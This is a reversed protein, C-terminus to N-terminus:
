RVAGTQCSPAPPEPSAEAFAVAAEIEADVESKIRALKDETTGASERLYRAAVDVPDRARYYEVRDQPM